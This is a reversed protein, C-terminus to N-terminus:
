PMFINQAKRQSMKCPAALRPNFHARLLVWAYKHRLVHVRNSNNDSQLADLFYFSLFFFLLQVTQYKLPSFYM